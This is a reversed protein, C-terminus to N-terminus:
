RVVVGEWGAPRMSGVVGGRRRQRRRCSPVARASSSRARSHPTGTSLPMHCLHPPPPPPQTAPPRRPRSTAPYTHTAHTAHSAHASPRSQWGSLGAYLCRSQATGEGSRPGRWGRAGGGRGRRRGGGGGRLTSSTLALTPLASATRRSICTLACGRMCQSSPQHHPPDLPTRPTRPHPLSLPYCTSCAPAAPLAAAECTHTDHSAGAAASM